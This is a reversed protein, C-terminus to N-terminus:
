VKVSVTVAVPQEFLLLIVTVTLGKGAADVPISLPIQIPPEVLMPEVVIKPFV